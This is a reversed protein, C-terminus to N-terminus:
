SPPCVPFSQRLTRPFGAPRRGTFRGSLRTFMFQGGCTRVRSLTIRARYPRPTKTSREIWTYTGTATARAARWKWHRVAWYDTGSNSGDGRRAVIYGPKVVRHVGYGQEFVAVGVASDGAIAAPPSLSSAVAVIAM